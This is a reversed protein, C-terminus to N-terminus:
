PRAEAVRPVPHRMAMIQQLLEHSPLADKDTRSAGHLRYRCLIAPVYGADFGAEVFKLWFDYDEWGLEIHSFGGVRRWAAVEILAMVDIYNGDRLRQIDFIDAYGLRRELGFMELQSYTAQFKGENAVRYLEAIANPFIENDADLIFVYRGAAREFAANRTLSPGQNRRNTLLVVRWFRQAHTQMWELAVDRTADADSADDVVILELAKHTQRKVSDLADKLFAEYNYASVCVTVLDRPARRTPTTEFLVDQAQNWIM